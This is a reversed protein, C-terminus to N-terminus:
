LADGDLQVLVFVVSSPCARLCRMSGAASGATSGALTAATPLAAAERVRHAQATDWRQSYLKPVTIQTHMSTKNRVTCLGQDKRLRSAIKCTFRRLHEM